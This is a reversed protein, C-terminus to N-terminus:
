YGHSWYDMVGLTTIGLALLLPIPESAGCQESLIARQLGLPDELTLGGLHKIDGMGDQLGAFMARTAPTDQHRDGPPPTKRFRERGHKGAGASSPVGQSAHRSPRM